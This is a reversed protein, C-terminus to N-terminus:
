KGDSVFAGHLGYRCGDDAVYAKFEDNPRLVEDVTNWFWGGHELPRDHWIIAGEVIDLATAYKCLKPPDSKSAEIYGESIIQRAKEIIAKQENRLRVFEEPTM